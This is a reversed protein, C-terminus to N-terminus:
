RGWKLDLLCQVAILTFKSLSLFIIPGGLCWTLCNPRANLVYPRM